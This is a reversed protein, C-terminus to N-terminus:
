ARRRRSLAGAAAVALALGCAAPVWDGLRVYPTDGAALPVAVVTAGRWTGPQWALRRGDADFAASV